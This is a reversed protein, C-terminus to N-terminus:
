ALKSSALSLNCHTRAAHSVGETKVEYGRFKKLLERLIKDHQELSIEM